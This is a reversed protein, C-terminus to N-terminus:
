NKIGVVQGRFRADISAYKNLDGREIIHDYFSKVRNLQDQYDSYMGFIIKQSGVRPILIIEGYQGIVAHELQNSWFDSQTIASNLELIENLEKSDIDRVSNHYIAGSIEGTYLPLRFYDDGISIPYGEKDLYYSNGTVELVRMVPIRQKVKIVCRGDITTYVDASHVASESLMRQRIMELPISDIREGILEGSVENVWSAVDEQNFMKFYGADELQIDVRKCLAHHQRYVVFGLLSFIGCGTIAILVIRLYKKRQTQPKNM